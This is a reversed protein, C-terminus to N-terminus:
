FPVEAPGGPAALVFLTGVLGNVALLPSVIMASHHVLAQASCFPCLFQRELWQFDQLNNVAVGHAVVRAGLDVRLAQRLREYLPVLNVDEGPLLIRKKGLICYLLVGVRGFRSDGKVDDVHSPGPVAVPVLSHVLSEGAHQLNNLRLHHM